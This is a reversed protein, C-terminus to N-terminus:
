AVSASDLCPSVPRDPAVTLDPVVEQEAETVESELGEMRLLQTALIRVHDDDPLVEGVAPLASTTAVEEDLMMVILATLTQAQVTQHAIVSGRATPPGLWHALMAGGALVVLLAAAALAVLRSDPFAIMRRRRRAQERIRALVHPSPGDGEVGQRAAEELRDLDRACARLTADGQMAQRLAEQEGSPLEGSRALLLRRIDADEKM